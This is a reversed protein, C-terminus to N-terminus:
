PFQSQLFIATDRVSDILVQSRKKLKRLTKVENLADIKKNSFRNLFSSKGLARTDVRMRHVKLIMDENAVILFVNIEDEGSPLALYTAAAVPMDNKLVWFLTAYKEEDQLARGM